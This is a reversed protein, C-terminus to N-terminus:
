RGFIISIPQDADFDYNAVGTNNNNLSLTYQPLLSAFMGYCHIQWHVPLVHPPRPQRVVGPQDAPRLQQQQRVPVSLVDPQARRTVRPFVVGQWECCGVEDNRDSVHFFWEM